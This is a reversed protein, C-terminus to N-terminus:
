DDSLGNEQWCLFTDCPDGEGSEIWAGYKSAYNNLAEFFVEDEYAERSGLQGCYNCGKGKCRPCDDVNSCAFPLYYKGSPNILTGLYVSMYNNSPDDSMLEPTEKIGWEVLEKAERKIDRANM